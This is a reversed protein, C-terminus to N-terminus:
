WLNELIGRPNLSHIPTRLAISTFFEVEKIPLDVEWLRWAWDRQSPNESFRQIPKSIQVAREIEYSVLTFLVKESDEDRDVLTATTWTEGNDTTVDVRIIERGGGSWSYGATLVLM